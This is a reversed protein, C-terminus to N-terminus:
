YNRGAGVRCSMSFLSSISGVEVELSRFDFETESDVLVGRGDYGAVLFTAEEYHPKVM